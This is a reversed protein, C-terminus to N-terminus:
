KGSIEIYGVDIMENDKWYSEIRKKNGDAVFMKRLDEGDIRKGVNAEANLIRVDWRDPSIKHLHLLKNTLITIHPRPFKVMKGRFKQSTFRGNKIIEIAAYFGNSIKEDAAIDFIVHKIRQGEALYDELTTSLNYMHGPGLRIAGEIHDEMYDAFYSKGGRGLPDIIAVIKRAEYDDEAMYEEITLEGVKTIVKGTGPIDVGDKDITDYEMGKTENFREIKWSFWSDKKVPIPKLPKPKTKWLRTLCGLDSAKASKGFQSILDQETPCKYVESALDGLAKGSVGIKPKKDEPNDKKVIYKEAVLNQYPKDGIKNNHYKFVEKKHAETTVKRVFPIIKDITFNEANRNRFNATAEIYAHTHLFGTKPGVDKKVSWYKIQRTETDNMEKLKRILRVEDFHHKYRLHLYKNQLPWLKFDPDYKDDENELDLPTEVDKASKGKSSVPSEKEM